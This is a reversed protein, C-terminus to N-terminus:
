IGAIGGSRLDNALADAGAFLVADMGAARAGVVNEERDDVFFIEHAPVGAREIAVRYIGEDPKMSGADYSLVAREFPRGPQGIAALFPFRGDSVFEWQLRNTNSLVGLRHGAAALRTVLEVSAQIPQFIDCFALELQRRDPRSGIQRCIHAFYEDGSLQGSEYRVQLSRAEPGGFVAGHMRETSVGAVEAMQRCMEEHSFSLLVNGLDFYLMKPPM